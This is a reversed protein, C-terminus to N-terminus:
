MMVSTAQRLAWVRMYQLSREVKQRGLSAPGTLESGQATVRSVVLTSCQDVHTEKSSYLHETRQQLRWPSNSLLLYSYQLWDMQQLDFVKLVRRTRRYSPRPQRSGVTSGTGRQSPPLKKDDKWLPVERILLGSGV